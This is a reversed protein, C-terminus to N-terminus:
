AVASLAAKMEERRRRAQALEDQAFRESAAEYVADCVVLFRMAAPAIETAAYEEPDHSPLDYPGKHQMILMGRYASARLVRTLARSIHAGSEFFESVASLDYDGSELRREWRESQQDLLERWSRRNSDVIREYGEIIAEPDAKPFEADEAFSAGPERSRGPASATAKPPTLEEEMLNEVPVEYFEAIKHLTPVYPKRRGRELDGLTERTIGIGAAAETLTLGREARLVRLRRALSSDMM